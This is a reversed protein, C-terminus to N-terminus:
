RHLPILESDRKTAPHTREYELRQNRIKETEGKLYRAALLSGTVVGVALTGFIEVIGRIAQTQDM